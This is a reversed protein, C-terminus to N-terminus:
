WGAAFTLLISALKASRSAWRAPRADGHEYRYWDLLAPALIIVGAVPEPVGRRPNGNWGVM